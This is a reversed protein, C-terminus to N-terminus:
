GLIFNRASAYGRRRVRDMEDLKERLEREEEPTGRPIGGTPCDADHLTTFGARLPVSFPIDEESPPQYRCDPCPIYSGDPQYGTM